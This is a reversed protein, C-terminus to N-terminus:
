ADPHEITIRIVVKGSIKAAREATRSYVAASLVV